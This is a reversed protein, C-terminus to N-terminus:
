DDIGLKAMLRKNKTVMKEAINLMDSRIDQDVALIKDYKKRHMGKPRPPLGDLWGDGGLQFNMKSLKRYVRKDKSEYKSPYVLNLCGMCGLHKGEIYLTTKRQDCEPCKLWWRNGGLPARTTALHLFREGIDGNTLRLTRREENIWFFVHFKRYGRTIVSQRHLDTLNIRWAYDRPRLDNWFM